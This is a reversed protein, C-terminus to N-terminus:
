GVGFNFLVQGPCDILKEVYIINNEGTNRLGFTGPILNTRERLKFGDRVLQRIKLEYSLCDNAKFNFIDTM